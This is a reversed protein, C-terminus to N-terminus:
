HKPARGQYRDYVLKCVTFMTKERGKEAMYKCKEEIGHM